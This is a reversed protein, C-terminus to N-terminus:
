RSDQLVEIESCQEQEEQMEERIRMLLKGLHNQGQGTRGIGWFYDHPANEVIELDGTSLLLQLLEPHMQFKRCLAGYM